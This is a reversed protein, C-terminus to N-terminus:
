ASILTYFHYIIYLQKINNSESHITISSGNKVKYSTKINEDNIKNIVTGNETYTIEKSIDNAKEAYAISPIFLLTAMAFFLKKM